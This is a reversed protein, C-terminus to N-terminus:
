KPAPLGGLAEPHSQSLLPWCNPLAEPFGPPQGRLLPGDRRSHGEEERAREGASHSNARRKRARSSRRRAQLNTRNLASAM